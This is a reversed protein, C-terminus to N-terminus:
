PLRELEPLRKVSWIYRGSQPLSERYVTRWDNLASGHTSALWSLLSALQEADAYARIPRDRKIGCWIVLCGAREAARVPIEGALTRTGDAELYLPITQELERDM